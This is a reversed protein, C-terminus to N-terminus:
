QWQVMYAQQQVALAAAASAEAVAADKKARKSGRSAAPFQADFADESEKLKAISTGFDTLYELYWEWLKQTDSQQLQSGEGGVVGM